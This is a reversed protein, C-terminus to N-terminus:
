RSSGALAGSADYGNVEVDMEGTPWWAAFWGDRGISPQLRLGSPTVIELSQIQLGAQGTVSSRSGAPGPGSSNVGDTRIEAPGIAPLPDASEMAGAGQVILEGDERVAIECLASSSRGAFAVILLGDGRADVVALSSDPKVMPGFQVRCQREAEAVIAPDVSFPEARWPGGLDTAGGGPLLGACGIALLAATALFGSLRLRRMILPHMM